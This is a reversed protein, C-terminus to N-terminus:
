SRNEICQEMCKAHKRFFGMVFEIKL